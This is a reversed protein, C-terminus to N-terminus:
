GHSQGGFNQIPAQPEWADEGRLPLSAVFGGIQHKTMTM